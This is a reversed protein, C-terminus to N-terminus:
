EPTPICSAPTSFGFLDTFIPVHVKVSIKEKENPNKYEGLKQIWGTTIDDICLENKSSRESPNSIFNILIDRDYFRCPDRSLCKDIM